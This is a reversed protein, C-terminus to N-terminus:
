YESSEEGEDEIHEGEDHPESDCASFFATLAESARRMNPKASRFEDFLERIATAKTEEATIDEGVEEAPEEGRRKGGIGFPMKPRKPEVGVSLVTVTPGKKKGGIGPLM